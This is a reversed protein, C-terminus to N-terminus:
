DNQMGGGNTAPAPSTAKATEIAMEMKQKTQEDSVKMEEEIDVRADIM